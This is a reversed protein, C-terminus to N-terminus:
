MIINIMLVAHNETVIKRKLYKKKLEVVKKHMFGKRLSGLRNEYSRRMHIFIFEIKHYKKKLDKTCHFHKMM